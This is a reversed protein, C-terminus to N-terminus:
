EPPNTIICETIRKSTGNTDVIVDFANSFPCESAADEGVKSDREEDGHDRLAHYTAAVKYKGNLKGVIYSLNFLL